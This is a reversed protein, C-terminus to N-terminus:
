DKSKTRSIENEREEKIAQWLKYRFAQHKATCYLVLSFSLHMVPLIADILIPTNWGRILSLLGVLFCSVSAVFIYHITRPHLVKM